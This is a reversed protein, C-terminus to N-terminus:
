GTRRCRGRATRGLVVVAGSRDPAGTAPRTSEAISWTQPPGDGAAPTVAVLQDAFHVPVSVGGVVPVYVKESFLSSPLRSNMLPWCTMLLQASWPGVVLVPVTVSVAPWGTLM